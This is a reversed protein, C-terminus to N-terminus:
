FLLGVGMGAAFLMALWSTTSFEPPQDGLKISGYKSLALGICAFLATSTAAVFFWDISLFATRTIANAGAATTEPAIIGLLAILVCIPLTIWLLDIRSRWGNKPPQIV